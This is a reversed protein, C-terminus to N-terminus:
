KSFTFKRNRKTDDFKLEHSFERIDDDDESESIDILYDEILDRYSTYNSYGGKLFFLQIYLEPKLIYGGVQQKLRLKSMENPKSAFVNFCEPSDMLLKDEILLIKRTSASIKSHSEKGVNSAKDGLGHFSLM